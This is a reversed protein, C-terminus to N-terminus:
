QHLPYRCLTRRGGAVMPCVRLAAVKARAQGRACAVQVHSGAVKSLARQIGKKVTWPGQRFVPVHAHGSCLKLAINTPVPKEFYIIKLVSVFGDGSNDVIIEVKATNPPPMAFQIPSPLISVNNEAVPKTLTSTSAFEPISVHSDFLVAVSKVVQPDLPRCVGAVFDAISNNVEREKAFTDPVPLLRVSWRKDSVENMAQDLVSGSMTTSSSPVLVGSLKNAQHDCHKYDTIM